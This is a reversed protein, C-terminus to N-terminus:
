CEGYEQSQRAACTALVGHRLDYAEQELYKMNAIGARIGNLRAEEKADFRRGAEIGSECAISQAVHSLLRLADIDIQRGVSSWEGRKAINRDRGAYLMYSRVYVAGSDDYGWTPLGSLEYGVSKVTM